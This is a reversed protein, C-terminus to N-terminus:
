QNLSTSEFNNIWDLSESDCVWANTVSIAVQSEILRGLGGPEFGEYDLGAYGNNESVWFM